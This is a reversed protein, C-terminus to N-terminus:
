RLFGVKRTKPLKRMQCDVCSKVHQVIRSLMKPWYYRRTIKDVTKSVGLHGSILDDHCAILIPKVLTHPVCLRFQEQGKKISRRYLVDDRLCYQRQLKMQKRLRSDSHLAQITRRCFTDDNQAEKINVSNSEGKVISGAFYTPVDDEDEAQDIPSRSLTDADLHLRGSKHVVELDLDQLSLSWRALRRDFGEEKFALM